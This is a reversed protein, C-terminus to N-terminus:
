AAPHLETCDPALSPASTQHLELSTSNPLSIWRKALSESWCIDLATRIHAVMLMRARVESAMTGNGSRWDAIMSSTTGVMSAASGDDLEWHDMAGLFVQIIKHNDISM